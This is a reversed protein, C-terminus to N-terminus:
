AFTNERIEIIDKETINIVEGNCGCRINVGWKTTEIDIVTGYYYKNKFGFILRVDKKLKELINKM